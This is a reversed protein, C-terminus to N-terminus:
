VLHGILEEGEGYFLDAMPIEILTYCGPQQRMS